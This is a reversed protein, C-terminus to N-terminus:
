ENMVAKLYQAGQYKKGLLTYFNQLHQTALSIAMNENEMSLCRWLLFEKIAPLYIDSLIIADDDKTILAVEAAYSLQVKMTAISPSPYVWFITPNEAEFMYHEIETETKDIMWTPIVEDMVKKEIKRVPGGGINRLIDIFRVGGPPITQMADQDLTVDAKIINADVGLLIIANQAETVYKFLIENTWIVQGPDNLQQEIDDTIIDSFITM